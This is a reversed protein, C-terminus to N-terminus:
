VIRIIALNVDTKLIAMLYDLFIGIIGCKSDGGKFSPLIPCFACKLAIQPQIPDTSLDHKFFHLNRVHQRRNISLAMLYIKISQRM